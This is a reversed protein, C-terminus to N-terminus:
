KLANGKQRQRFRQVRESNQNRRRAIEDREARVEQASPNYDLYDHIQWGGPRLEWLGCDVLRKALEEPNPLPAICPLLEKLIFGDTLDRNAYCLGGIFLVTAEPGAKIMKPNYAFNDEIQIWSMAGRQLPFSNQTLVNQRATSGILKGPDNSLAFPM